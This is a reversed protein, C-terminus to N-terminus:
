LLMARPRSPSSQAGSEFNSHQPVGHLSGVTSPEKSTQVEPSDLGGLTTKRTKSGTKANIELPCEELLYYYYFSAGRGQWHSARTSPERLYFINKTGREM